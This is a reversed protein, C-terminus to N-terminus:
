EEEYCLDENFAQLSVIESKYATWFEDLCHNYVYMGYNILLEQEQGPVEFDIDQNGLINKLTIIGNSIIRKLQTRLSEDISYDTYGLESALLEVLM